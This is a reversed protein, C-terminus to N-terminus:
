LCGLRMKGPREWSRVDVGDIFSTEEIRNRFEHVFRDEGIGSGNERKDSSHDGTILVIFRYDIWKGMDTFDRNLQDPLHEETM